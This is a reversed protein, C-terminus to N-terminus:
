QSGSDGNANSKGKAKVPKSEHQKLFLEVAKKARVPDTYRGELGQVPKRSDVDLISYLASNYIHFIGVEKGDVDFTAKPRNKAEDYLHMTM